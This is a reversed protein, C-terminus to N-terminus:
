RHGEVKKALEAIKRGPAVGQPCRRSCEFARECAATGDASDAIARMEPSREPHKKIELGVAALAAPGVFPGTAPCAAVCIGCEICDELRRSIGRSEGRSASDSEVPRMYDTEPMAEFLPGPWVALGGIETMKALPELLITGSGLDGAKALCMLRPIGNIMAGCSGCSGHHCSHRYLLDPKEKKRLRELLDLVTDGPLAEISFRLEQRSNKIIMDINM